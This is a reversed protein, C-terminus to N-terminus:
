KREFIMSMSFGYNDCLGKVIKIPQDGMIADYICKNEDEMDSLNHWKITYDENVKFLFRVTMQNLKCLDRLLDTTGDVSCDYVTPYIEQMEERNIMDSM